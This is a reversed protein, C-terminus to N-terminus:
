SNAKTMYIIRDETAWGGFLGEATRAQWSYLDDTRDLIQLTSVFSRLETIFTADKKQQEAGRLRASFTELLHDRWSADPRTDPTRPYSKRELECCVIEAGLHQKLLSQFEELTLM